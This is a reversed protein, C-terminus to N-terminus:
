KKEKSVRQIVENFDIDFPHKDSTNNGSSTTTDTNNHNSISKNSNTENNNVYTTPVTISSHFQNTNNSNSKSPIVNPLSTRLFKAFGPTSMIADPQPSSSSGSSSNVNSPLLSDEDLMEILEHADTDSIENPKNHVISSSSSSSGNTGHHTQKQQTLRNNIANALTPAQNIFAQLMDKNIHDIPMNNLMNLIDDDPDNNNGNNYNKAPTTTTNTTSSSSAVINNMAVAKNTAITRSTSNNSNGNSHFPKKKPSHLWQQPPSSKRKRRSTSAASNAVYVAAAQQPHHQLSDRVDRMTKYYTLFKSLNDLTSKLRPQFRTAHQLVFARNTADFHLLKFYENMIIELSKVKKRPTINRLIGESEAKFCKLANPFKSSNDQLYELVLLTLEHEQIRPALPTAM